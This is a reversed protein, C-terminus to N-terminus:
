IDKLKIELEQPEIIKIYPIWAKIINLLEDDFAFEVDLLIGNEDDKILKYSKFVQKRGFYEKAKPSVLIRANKM